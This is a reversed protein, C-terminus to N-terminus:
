LLDGVTGLVGVHENDWYLRPDLVHLVRQGHRHQVVVPLIVSTGEAALGYFVLCPLVLLVAAPARLAALELHVDVAVVDM